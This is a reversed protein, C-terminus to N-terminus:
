LSRMKFLLPASPGNLRYKLGKQIIYYIRIMTLRYLTLNIARYNSRSKYNRNLIRIKKDVPFLLCCSILVDSNHLATIVCVQLGERVTRIHNRILGFVTVMM